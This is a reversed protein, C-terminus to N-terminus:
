TKKRRIAGAPCVKPSYHDIMTCGGDDTIASNVDLAARKRRKTKIRAIPAGCAECETVRSVQDKPLRYVQVGRPHAKRAPKEEAHAANFSKRFAEADADPDFPEDLERFDVPYKREHEEFIPLPIPCSHDYGRFRYEIRCPKTGHELAELFYPELLPDDGPLAVYVDARESQRLVITRPTGFSM